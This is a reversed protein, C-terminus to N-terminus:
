IGLKELADRIDRIASPLHRLADWAIELKRGASVSRYTGAKVLRVLLFHDFARHKTYQFGLDEPHVLYTHGSPTLIAHSKEEVLQRLGEDLVRLTHDRINMTRFYPLIQQGRLPLLDDSVYKYGLQLLALLLSSKGTGSAGTLVVAVEPASPTAACAAHVARFSGAFPAIWLPPLVTPLRSSELWSEYLLPTSNPKSIYITKEVAPNLLAQHWPLSANVGFDLQIDPRDATSDLFSRFQFRFHLSDETTPLNLKVLVDWFRLYM